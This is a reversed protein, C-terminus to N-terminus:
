FADLPGAGMDTGSELRKLPKRRWKGAVRIGHRALEPRLCPDFRANASTLMPRGVSADPTEFSPLRAAQRLRSSGFSAFVGKWKRGNGETEKRPDRAILPNRPRLPDSFFKM